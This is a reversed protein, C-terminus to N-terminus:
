KKQTAAFVIGSVILSIGVIFAVLMWIRKRKKGSCNNCGCGCDEKQEQQTHEM